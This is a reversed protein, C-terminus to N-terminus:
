WPEMAMKYHRKDSRASGAALTPHEEQKRTMKNDKRTKTQSRDVAAGVARVTLRCMTMLDLCYSNSVRNSCARVLGSLLRFVGKVWLLLGKEKPSPAIYM